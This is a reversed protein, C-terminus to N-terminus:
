GSHGCNVIGVLYEMGTISTEHHRIQRKKHEEPAQLQGELLVFTPSSCKDRLCAIDM